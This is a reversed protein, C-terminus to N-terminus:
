TKAEKADEEDTLIPRNFTIFNKSQRRILTGLFFLALSFSIAALSLCLQYKSQETPNLYTVLIPSLGDTHWKLILSRRGHEAIISIESLPPQANQPIVEAPLVITVTAEYSGPSIIPRFKIADSIAKPIAKGAPLLIQYHGHDHYIPYPKIKFGQNLIAFGNERDKIVGKYEIFVVSGYPELVKVTWNADRPPYTYDEIIVPLIAMIHFTDNNAYNFLFTLYVVKQEIDLDFTFHMNSITHSGSEQYWGLQITGEPVSYPNPGGLLYIIIALIFFSISISIAIFRWPASGITMM